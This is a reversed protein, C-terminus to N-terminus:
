RKKIAPEVIDMLAGRPSVRLEDPIPDFFPEFAPLIFHGIFERIGQAVNLVELNGFSEDRFTIHTTIDLKTKIKEHFLDVPFSAVVAGDHILGDKFESIFIRGDPHVFAGVSFGGIACLALMHHKDMNSLKALLWLPHTTRKNDDLRYPQVASIIAIAKKSVTNLKGLTVALNLFDDESSLAIPFQTRRTPTGGNLITLECALYDLACRLNHAADGVITSLFLPPEKTIHFTFGAKSDGLDRHAAVTYPCTDTYSRIERYLSIIHVDARRLKEIVGALPHM